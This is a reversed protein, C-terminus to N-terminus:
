QTFGEAALAADLAEAIRGCRAAIGPHEAGVSHRRLETAVALAATITDVVRDPTSQDPAPVGGAPAHRPGCADDLTELGDNTWSAPHPELDEVAHWAAARVRQAATRCAGSCYRRRRGPGPVQAIPEGCHACLSNTQPETVCGRQNRSVPNGM